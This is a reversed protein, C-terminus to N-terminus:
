ISSLLESQFEEVSKRQNSRQQNQNEKATASPGPLNWGNGTRREENYKRKYCEEITNGPTKCYKCEKQTSMMRCRAAEHGSRNCIQCTLVKNIETPLPRMPKNLSFCKDASHGKKKCLQCTIRTSSKNLFCDKTTHGQKKCIQCEQNGFCQTATHGQKNCIQCKIQNPSEYKLNKQAKFCKELTHGNINCNTCWLINRCQGAEHGEKNCIRRLFMRRTRLNNDEVRNNATTKRLNKQAELKREITIANKIVNNVDEVEENGLRKELEFKLGRKFSDVLTNEISARFNADIIGRNELSRVELIRTGIDRIRNAYTIVNEHDKQYEHGLEGLLQPITRAPTYINKFFTKLEDINLFVQGSIAQRAEGTIKSRILKVLNIESEPEIMCKAENYGEIFQALPINRGNFEPVVMLADRLTVVQVTVPQQNVNINQKPQESSSPRGSGSKESMSM